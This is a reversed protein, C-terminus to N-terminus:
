MARLQFRALIVHRFHCRASSIVAFEALVYRVNTFAYQNASQLKWMIDFDCAHAGNQASALRQQM